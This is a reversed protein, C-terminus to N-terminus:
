QECSELRYVDRESCTLDRIYRNNQAFAELSQADRNIRWIRVAPDQGASVAFSDDFSFVVEQIWDDHQNFLQLEEGSEWDWMRVTTDSSTTLM